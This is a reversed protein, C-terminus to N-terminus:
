LAKLLTLINSVHLSLLSSLIESYGNSDSIM